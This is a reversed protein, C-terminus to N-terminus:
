RMTFRLNKLDAEAQVKEGNMRFTMRWGNGTTKVRVNSIETM